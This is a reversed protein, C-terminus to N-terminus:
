VEAYAPFNWIVAKIDNITEAADYLDECRNSESIMGAIWETYGSDPIIGIAIDLQHEAAIVGYISSRCEARVMSLLDARIDSIARDTKIDTRSFVGNDDQLWEGSVVSEYIPDIDPIMIESYPVRMTTINDALSIFEIYKEDENVTYNEPIM